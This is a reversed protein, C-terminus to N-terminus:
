TNRDIIWSVSNTAQFSLSQLKDCSVIILQEGRLPTQGRTRL